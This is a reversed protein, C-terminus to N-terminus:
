GRDVGWGGFVEWVHEWSEMEWGCRRCMRREEEEWYRGGRMENGLMYRAVRRWRSEGWGKEFVWAGGREESGWVVQQLEIGQDEGM